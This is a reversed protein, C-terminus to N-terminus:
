VAKADQDDVVFFVGEIDHAADKSLVASFHVRAMRGSSREFFKRLEVRVDDHAVDPHRVHISVGEDALDPIQRRLLAALRGGDRM